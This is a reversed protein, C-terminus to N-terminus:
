LSQIDGLIALLELTPQALGPFHHADHDVLGLPLGPTDHEWFTLLILNQTGALDQRVFFNGEWKQQPSSSASNMSLSPFFACSAIRASGETYNWVPSTKLSPVTGLTM